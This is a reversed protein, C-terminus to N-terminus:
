RPASCNGIDNQPGSSTGQILVLVCVFIYIYIIVSGLFYIDQMPPPLQLNSPLELVVINTIVDAVISGAEAAMAHGLYSRKMLLFPAEQTYDRMRQIFEHVWFGVGLVRFGLCRKDSQLGAEAASM